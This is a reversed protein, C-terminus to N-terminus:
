ASAEDPYRRLISRVQKQPLFIRRTATSTGSILPPVAFIRFAAPVTTYLASCKAPPYPYQPRRVTSAALPCFLAEKLHKQIRNIDNLFTNSLLINQCKFFSQFHNLISLYIFLYKVSFPFYLIIYCFLRHPLKIKVVSKSFKQLTIKLTLHTSIKVM